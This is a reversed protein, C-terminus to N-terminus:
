FGQFGGQGGMGAKFAEHGVRDYTARKNSDKLVEYAEALEKFKKEAEPDGAHHDPHCDMAKVRFARKIEEFSATKEVGLTEYYDAM